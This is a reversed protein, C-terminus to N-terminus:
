ALAHLKQVHLSIEEAADRVAAGLAPVRELPLQGTTGVVSVAALSIGDVGRIAAGVARVGLEEEQDNFAYGQRRVEALESLLAPSSTITRENQPELPDSLIRLDLDEPRLYAALAKGVATSHVKL